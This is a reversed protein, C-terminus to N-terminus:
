YSHFGIYFNTADILESLSAHISSYLEPLDSASSSSEAIRYLVHQIRESEKLRAEARKQETVDHAMARVIPREVGETRVSNRFEWMREEGRRTVVRMLGSSKGQQIDELYSPFLPHFDPALFEAMNRGVLEEQSDYGLRERNRRTDM